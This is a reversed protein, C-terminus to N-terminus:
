LILMCCLLLYVSLLKTSECCGMGEEATRQTISEANNGRNGNVRAFVFCSYTTFPELDSITIPASTANGARHTDQDGCNVTYGTINLDTTPPEWSFSISRSQM